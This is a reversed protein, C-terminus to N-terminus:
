FGPRCRARMVAATRTEVGLKEYIHQLHKQVTRHSCGLIAAIDRDTKGGALWGVVENERPTLVAASPYDDRVAASAALAAHLRALVPGVRDLLQCERDSFNRRKRNLVFSVLVDGDVRIPVAVVHDIGIRRYYDSYLAGERFRAFPISDSIRHAGRGRQAAHFRVLPHAAFHRDFCARDETGLREDPFGTVERRGSALHCISLTTLDSPVLGPLERVGARAFGAADASQEAIAGLAGLGRELDSRSLV